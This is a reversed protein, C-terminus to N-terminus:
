VASMASLCKKEFIFQFQSQHLKQHHHPGDIFQCVPHLLMHWLPPFDKVPRGWPYPTPRPTPSPISNSPVPSPLPPYKGKQPSQSPLREGRKDHPHLQTSNREKKLSTPRLPPCLIYLFDLHCDKTAPPENRNPNLMAQMHFQLHRWIYINRKEPYISGKKNQKWAHLCKNVEFSLPPSRQYNANLSLRWKICFTNIVSITMDM